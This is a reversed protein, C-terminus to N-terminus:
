DITCSRRHHVGGTAGGQSSTVGGGSTSATAAAAAGGSTDMDEQASTDYGNVARSSAVVTTPGQNVHGPHNGRQTAIAHAAAANAQYFGELGNNLLLSENKYSKRPSRPGRESIWPQTAM